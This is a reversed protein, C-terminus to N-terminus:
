NPRTNLEHVQISHVAAPKKLRQKNFLEEMNDLVYNTIGFERSIHLFWNVLENRTPFQGINYCNWSWTGDTNEIIDTMVPKELQTPKFASYLGFEDKQFVFPTQRSRPKPRTKYGAKRLLFSKGCDTCRLSVVPKRGSIKYLKSCSCHPCTRGHITRKRGMLKVGGHHTVESNTGYLAFLELVRAFQLKTVLIQTRRFLYTM